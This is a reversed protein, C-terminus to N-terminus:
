RPTENGAAAPALQLLLLFFAMLLYPWGIRITLGVFMVPNIAHFFSSSTVLLIVMAPLFFFFFLFYPIVLLPGFQFALVVASIAMAIFIAYQKLVIHVDQTVTESNIPPPKLNGSATAKLSEFAYKLLVIGAAARVAVKFFGPGWFMCQIVTFVALIILPYLSIPYLFIKPLRKWFPDILNSVGVWNAPFNCKPCFHVYEIRGYGGSERKSVCEPCMFGACQPCNWHALQTPHNNCVKKM